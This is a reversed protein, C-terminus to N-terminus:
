FKYDMILNFNWLDVRNIRYRDPVNTGDKATKNAVLLQMNLGDFYGNFQYSAMGTFHYYSPIGYKNSRFDDIGSHLVSGAGLQMLLGEVPTSQEYKFVLASMDGSGEYRERPLSAFFSERGWERPFLFRGKDNIGLYNVSLQHRQFFWGLKAGIGSASEDPMIYAKQMDPNGGQGLAFQHFGQIGAQLKSGNQLTKIYEAQGFSINFVHDATYNWAQASLGSKHYQWGFVGIGRSSVNGKYGSPEGLPNRGFPYVGFSDEISYWDVTGRITVSSLWMGTVKWNTHSYTASLGGFVNPRMRNDQENLLPSHVKQRGLKLRLNKIKYSLYLEELRDLKNTNTIDNMDYLLIEYRNGAGTSPDAIRINNEFLQFTFFGNFRLQFGKWEPSTYGIGAGAALTSYNLLEGKNITSMFFSKVHFDIEGKKLEEGLTLPISDVSAQAWNGFILFALVSVTRTM